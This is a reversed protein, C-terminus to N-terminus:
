TRGRQGREMSWEGPSMPGESVGWQLASLSGTAITWIGRSSAGAYAVLSYQVISEADNSEASNKLTVEFRRSTPARTAKMRILEKEGM